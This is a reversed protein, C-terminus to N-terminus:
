SEKNKKSLIYVLVTDKYEKISEILKDLNKDVVNNDIKDSFFISLKCSQYTKNIQNELIFLRFIFEAEGNAIHSRHALQYKLYEDYNKELKKGLDM